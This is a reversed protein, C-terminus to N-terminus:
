LYIEDSLIINFSLLYIVVQSRIENERDAQGTISVFQTENGENTKM